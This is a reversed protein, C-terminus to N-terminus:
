AAVIGIIIRPLFVMKGLVLLLRQRQDKPNPMFWGTMRITKELANTCGVVSMLLCAPIDLFSLVRILGTTATIRRSLAASILALAHKSYHKLEQSSIKYGIGNRSILEATITQMQESITM